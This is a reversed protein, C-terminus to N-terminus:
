DAARSARRRLRLGLQSRVFGAASEAAGYSMLRRHPDAVVRRLLEAPRDWGQSLAVLSGFSGASSRAGPLSDSGPLVALRRREAAAFATPRRWFAPRGANDGVALVGDHDHEILDEVLRGRAGFWKGVGWPLVAIAGSTTIERISRGASLGAEPRLRTGLALIELREATVIQFGAIIALRESGCCAFLTEPEESQHLSWGPLSPRRSSLAEFVLQGPMEALMLVGGLAAGGRRIAAFRTAAADLVSSAAGPDHIHVHWDVPVTPGSM